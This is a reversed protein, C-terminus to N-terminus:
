EQYKTLDIKVEPKEAAIETELEAIVGRDRMSFYKNKKTCVIVHDVLIMELYRAGRIIDKTCELDGGSPMISNSTHNHSVVLYVANVLLARKFIDRLAVQADIASGHAIEFFGVVNMRADFAILVIHEEAFETMGYAELVKYVGEYDEAHLPGDYDITGIQKLAIEYKPIM